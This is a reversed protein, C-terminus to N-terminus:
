LKVGIKSLTDEGVDGFRILDDSLGALCARERRVSTACLVRPLLFIGYIRALEGFAERHARCDYNEVPGTQPELKLGLQEQIASLISPTSRNKDETGHATQRQDEPQWNLTLDYKGELGTKDLVICGLQRSLEHTLKSVGEGFKFDKICAKFPRSWGNGVCGVGPM